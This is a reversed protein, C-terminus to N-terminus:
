KLELIGFPDDNDVKAGRRLLNQLGNSFAYKKELCIDSRPLRESISELWGDVSKAGYVVYIGVSSDPLQVM